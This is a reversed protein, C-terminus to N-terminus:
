IGWLRENVAQLEDRPAAVTAGLGAVAWAPIAREVAVTRRAGTDAVRPHEIGLITLKDVLGGPAGEIVITKSM